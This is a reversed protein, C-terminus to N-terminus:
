KEGYLKRWEKWARVPDNLQRTEWDAAKWLREFEAKTVRWTACGFVWTRM